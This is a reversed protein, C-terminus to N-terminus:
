PRRASAQIRRSLPLRRMRWVSMRRRRRRSAYLLGQRYSLLAHASYRLWWRKKCCPPVLLASATLVIVSVFFCTFHARVVKSIVLRTSVNGHVPVAAMCAAPRGDRVRKQALSVALGDSGRIVQQKPRPAYVPQRASVTASSIRRLVCARLRTATSPLRSDTPAPSDAVKNDMSAPPLATKRSSAIQSPPRMPLRPSYSPHPCWEWIMVQIQIM